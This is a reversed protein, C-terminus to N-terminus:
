NYMFRLKFPTQVICNCMLAVEIQMHLCQKSCIYFQLCLRIVNKFLFQYATFGSPTQMYIYKTSMLWMWVSLACYQYLVVRMCQCQYRCDGRIKVWLYYRLKFLIDMSCGIAIRWLKQFTDADWDKTFLSCCLIM